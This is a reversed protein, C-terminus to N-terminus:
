GADGRGGLRQLLTNYRRVTAPFSLVYDRTREDGHGIVVNNPFQSRTLDIETGDALRNWYHSLGEVDSRVLTGGALDQVVLATVACQGWAPNAPSWGEPDVSTERCWASAVARAFEHLERSPLLALM